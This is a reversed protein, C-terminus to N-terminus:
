EKKTITISVEDEVDWKLLERGRTIIGSTNMNKGKVSFSIEVDERDDFGGIRALEDYSAALTKSGTDDWNIAEGNITVLM